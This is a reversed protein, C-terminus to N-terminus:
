KKKIAQAKIKEALNPMGQVTTLKPLPNIIAMMKERHKNMDFAMKTIRRTPTEMYPNKRLAKFDRAEQEISKRAENLGENGINGIAM